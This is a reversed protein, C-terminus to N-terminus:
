RLMAEFRKKYYPDVLQNELLVFNSYDYTSNYVADLFRYRSDDSTFFIVLMKVQETTLCKGNITKQTLQIMKDSDAETFLKRKLKDLDNDSLMKTCGTKFMAQPSTKISASADVAPKEESVPIVQQATDASTKNFFPNNPKENSTNSNASSDILVTNNGNTVVPEKIIETTDKEVISNTIPETKNEEAPVIAPIFIRITDANQANFDVFVMETGKDTSVESAKIIGKTSTFFNSDTGTGKLLSSDNLNEIVANSSANKDPVSLVTNQKTLTSDDVVDSLVDGFPNAKSAASNQGSSLIADGSMIIEMTQFNVLGFGKDAFSKLSYGADNGNIVCTFKQSPFKDQPFGITFHYEGDALKSIILYGNSGSNYLKNNLEAYFPQKDEAQIFIFHNQQAAAQQIFIVHLFVFLSFFFVPKKMMRQVNLFLVVEFFTKM